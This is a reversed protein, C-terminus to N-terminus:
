TTSLAIAQQYLVGALFPPSGSHSGIWWFTVSMSDASYSLTGLCIIRSCPLPNFPVCIGASKHVDLLVAIREFANAFFLLRHETAPLGLAERYGLDLYIYVFVLLIFHGLITM